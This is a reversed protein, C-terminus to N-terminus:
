SCKAYNQVLKECNIHQKKSLAGFDILDASLNLLRNTLTLLVRQRARSKILQWAWASSKRPRTTPMVSPSVILTNYSPLPSFIRSYPISQGSFLCANPVRALCNVDLKANPFSTVTLRPSQLSGCAIAGQPYLFIRLDLVSGLKV